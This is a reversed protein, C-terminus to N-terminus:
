PAVIVPRAEAVDLRAAPGAATILQDIELSPGGNVRYSVRYGVDVRPTLGTAVKAYTHTVDKAPYPAGAKSTVQSTGDGHHWTFSAPVAVIEVAQGLLVTSHRFEPAETFFITEANM